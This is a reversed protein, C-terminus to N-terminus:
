RAPPETRSSSRSSGRLPHAPSASAPPRGRPTALLRGSAALQSDGALHALREALNEPAELGDLLGRASPAGGVLPISQNAVDM